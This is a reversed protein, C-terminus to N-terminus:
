PNFWFKVTAKAKSAVAKGGQTAPAYEYQKLAEVAATRLAQPGSIVKVDGVHGSADVEVEAKVDGTIYSRMAEPPYVPSAAKLLKAAILPGDSVAAEAARPEAVASATANKNSAVKGAGGLRAVDAKKETASVVRAAKAEAVAKSKGKEGTGTAAGEAKAAVAKAASTERNEAANGKMAAANGSNTKAVNGVAVAASKGVPLYEWWKGYWAGGVVALLLAASLGIVRLKGAGVRKPRILNAHNEAPHAANEALKSFDLEPKPLLGEAGDHWETVAKEIKQNPLKMRVVPRAPENQKAAAPMLPAKVEEVVKVTGASQDNVPALELKEKSVRLEPAAETKVTAAETAVKATVVTAEKGRLETVARVSADTTAKAAVEAVKKKQLGVLQERLADVEKKLPEGDEVARPAAPVGRPEETAEAAQVQEAKLGSGDRKEEPFAVGWFDAKEETFQLEVYCETPRSCRKHLVQCVVEKSSKKNTLFLLQGVSVGAALRIMAGDKFVLVTSTEESFLDRSGGDGSARAGTVTVFEELVM